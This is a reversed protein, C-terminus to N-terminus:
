TTVQQVVHVTGRLRTVGGVQEMDWAWSGAPVLESNAKIMTLTFATGVGATFVASVTLTGLLQATPNQRMRIESVYTGSWDVDKVIFSLTVPDGAVWELDLEVADQSIIVTVAGDYRRLGAGSPAPRM